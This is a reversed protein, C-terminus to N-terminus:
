LVCDIQNGTLPLHGLGNFGHCCLCPFNRQFDSSFIYPYSLFDRSFINILPQFDSYFTNSKYSFEM